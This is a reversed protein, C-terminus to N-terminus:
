NPHSGQYSYHLNSYYKCLKTLQQAIQNDYVALQQNVNIQSNILM